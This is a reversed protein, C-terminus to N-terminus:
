PRTAEDTIAAMAGALSKLLDQHKSIGYAEVLRDPSWYGVNVSGAADQWVLVRLPLDLGVRQDDQMLPTGLKPNGFVLVTTPRLELGATKAAAAHDIKALVKAGRSEIAAVVRQLTTEVDHASQRSVLQPAQADVAPAGMAISAMLFMAMLNRHM